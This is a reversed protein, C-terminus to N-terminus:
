IVSRTSTVTVECAALIERTCLGMEYGTLVTDPQLKTLFAIKISGDGTTLEAVDNAIGPLSGSKHQINIEFEQAGLPIRSNLISSKLADACVPYTTEETAMSLLRLAEIASTTGMVSVTRIDPSLQTESFGSTSLLSNVEETSILSRLHLTALEDSAILMFRLLEETSVVTTHVLGRLVSQSPSLSTIHSLNHEQLMDLEGIKSKHEVTMAIPLKLVSAASFSQFGNINASFNVDSLSIEVAVAANKNTVFSNM